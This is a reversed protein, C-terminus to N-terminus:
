EIVVRKLASRIAIFNSDFRIYDRLDALKDACSQVKGWFEPDETDEFFAQLYPDVQSKEKESEHERMGKLGKSSKLAEANIFPLRSRSM